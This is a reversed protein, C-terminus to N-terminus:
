VFAGAIPSATVNNRTIETTRKEKLMCKQMRCKGVACLLGDEEGEIRTQQARAGLM